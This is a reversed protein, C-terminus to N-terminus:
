ADEEDDPAELGSEGGQLKELRQLVDKYAYDVSLIETYHTEAQEPKGSKEYVRGLWYHARKFADPKDQGSMGELAREFQRRGLDLKGDKAFCEGLWVLADEKLRSDASAQQYLPIAKTYQKTKRYREAMEYRMKMDNPHREIRPAFYEIERAMLETQLEVAKQKLRDKDPNKRYRDTADALRDRMIDLEVDEKLELIDSNNGSIELAKEYQELAQPLKRATHYHQALKVYNNINDPEKRIAHKLDLEVSQGPADAEPRGGKRAQRDAEYANVPQEKDVKVDQTNQAKEYNGRDMVSEADLKSMMSRADGDTPDAKYVREFCARARKYEGRDRLVEGLAKNYAINAIDLKVAQEWAYAAVEGREQEAAAEGIDAFLQADWPNVMLGEEAAQDVATWDKKMRAKKVRGRIGMLKMSAMRAGTGNDDYKKRLCGHRTQRYLLVDPKMKVSNGYCEVAFDWNQRGMAENGKRFWEQAAKSLQDSGFGGDNM